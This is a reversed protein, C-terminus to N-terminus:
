GTFRIKKKTIQLWHLWDYGGELKAQLLMNDDLSNVPLRKLFYLDSSRSITGIRTTVGSRYGIRELSERLYKIFGADHDPFAFPYSFTNVQQGINQEIDDKSKKLENEIKERNILYLQHHYITHSGFIVDRCSLSRIEDWTLCERSKFLKRAHDMFGTPLFVTSNFGFNDLVHFANSYFDLFGDDFTIVAYRTAETVQSSGSPSQSSILDIAESISIVKYNNDALFQMHRAFVEPKTNTQYYPHCGPDDHDSISHYM